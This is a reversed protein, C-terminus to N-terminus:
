CQPIQIARLEIFDMVQVNEYNIRITWNKRSPRNKAADVMKM